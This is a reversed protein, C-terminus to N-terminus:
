RYTAKLAGWSRPEDHLQGGLTVVLAATEVVASADCICITPYPPFSGCSLGALSVTGSGDVLFTWDTEADGCAFDLLLDFTAAGDATDGLVHTTVCAPEGTAALGQVLGAEGDGLGVGAGIAGDQWCASRYDRYHGTVHLAVGAIEELRGAATFGVLVTEAPILYLADEGLDLPITVVEAGAPAAARFMLVVALRLM